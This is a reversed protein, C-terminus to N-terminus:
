KLVDSKDAEIIINQADESLLYGESVMDNAARTVQAVYGAHDKYREELSLRSDKAAIREERTKKFPIFMGNLANLDGDGYGPKRLSWGTYTGLPARLTVDRIGGLENDDVDVKPVRVHYYKGELVVPPERLVGTVLGAKYGPGFDLLPGDSVKGSFPVGPIDMWGISQKDSNVLTSDAIRPYMSQPPIKDELVWKELNIVLNRLYPGYNNYNTNFGSVKDAVGFPSHQTSNFLYIRM